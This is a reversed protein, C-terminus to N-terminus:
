KVHMHLHSIRVRALLYRVRIIEVRAGSTQPLVVAMSRRAERTNLVPSFLSLALTLTVGMNDTDECPAGSIFM